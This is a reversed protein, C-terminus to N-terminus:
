DSRDRSNARFSQGGLIQAGATLGLIIPDNAGARIMGFEDTIRLLVSAPDAVHSNLETADRHVPFKQDFRRVPCTKSVVQRGHLYGHLGLDDM